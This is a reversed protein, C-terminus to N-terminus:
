VTKDTRHTWPLGDCAEEIRHSAIRQSFYGSTIPSHHQHNREYFITGRISSSIKSSSSSLSVLICIRRQLGNKHHPLRQEMEIFIFRFVILHWRRGITETLHTPSFSSQTNGDIRNFITIYAVWSSLNRNQKAGSASMTHLASRSFSRSNLAQFGDFHDRQLLAIVHWKGHANSLYIGRALFSILHAISTSSRAAMEHQQIRLTRRHLYGRRNNTCNLYIILPSHARLSGHTHVFFM